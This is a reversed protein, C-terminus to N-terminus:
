RSSAPRIAIYTRGSPQRCHIVHGSGITQEALRRLRHSSYNFKRACLSEKAEGNTWLWTVLKAEDADLSRDGGYRRRLRLAEKVIDDDLPRTESKMRVYVTGARSGDQLRCFDHFETPDVKVMVIDRLEHVVTEVTLEPEPEILAAAARVVEIERAADDCGIPEGRNSVGIAIDGGDGNAFACIIRALRPAEPCTSKYELVASEGGRIRTRINAM